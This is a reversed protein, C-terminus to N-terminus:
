QGKQDEQTTKRNRDNKGQKEIFCGCLATAMTKPWVTVEVLAAIMKGTAMDLKPMLYASAAPPNRRCHGMIVGNAPKGSKDEEWFICEECKM